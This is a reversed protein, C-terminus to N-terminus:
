VPLNKAEEDFSKVQNFVSREIDTPHSIQREVFRKAILMANEAKDNNDLEIEIGYKEHTYNGTNILREYSVTKARM